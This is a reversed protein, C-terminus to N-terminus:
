KSQKKEYEVEIFLEGREVYMYEIEKDEAAKRSIIIRQEKEYDYYCYQITCQIEIQQNLEYVKM